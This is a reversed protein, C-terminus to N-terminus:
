VVKAYTLDMLRYGRRELLYGFDKQASIQRHIVKVGEDRLAGDAWRIFKTGVMGKRVEPDLWIMDQNAELNYARHPHRMVFFVQYGVLTSQWGSGFRATYIRLAGAKASQAYVRIDPDIALGLQPIEANHLDWLPRMEQVLKESYPEIAFRM